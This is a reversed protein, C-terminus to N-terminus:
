NRLQLDLTVVPIRDKLWSTIWPKGTYNVLYFDERVLQRIVSLVEFNVQTALLVFPQREIFNPSGGFSLVKVYGTYRSM